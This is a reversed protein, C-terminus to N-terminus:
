RMLRKAAHESVRTLLEVWVESMTGNDTRQLEAIRREALETPTPEVVRPKRKGSGKTTQMTM